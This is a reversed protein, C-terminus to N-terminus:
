RGPPPALDGRATLGLWLAIGALTGAIPALGARLALCRAGSHRRAPHPHGPHAPARAPGKGCPDGHGAPVAQGAGPSSAAPTAPHHARPPRRLGGVTGVPDAAGDLRRQAAPDGGDPRDPHTAAAATRWADRVQADTLDPRADLGLAAFPNM